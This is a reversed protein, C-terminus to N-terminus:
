FTVVGCKSFTVEGNMVLHEMARGAASSTGRRAPPAATPLWMSGLNGIVELGGNCILSRPSELCALYRLCYITTEEVMISNGSVEPGAPGAPNHALVQSCHGGMDHFYM